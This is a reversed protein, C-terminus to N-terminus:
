ELIKFYKYIPYVVGPKGVGLSVLYDTLVGSGVFGDAAQPELCYFATNAAPQALDVRFTGAPFEKSSSKRFRGTLEMTPERVAQRIGGTGYLPTPAKALMDIVFEEGTAKVPKDLVDVKVNHTRLKEAIFGMDAPILYGRPVTAERTGVPKALYDLDKYVLDPPGVPGPQGWTRVSTGPIYRRESHKRSYAPVDIKGYSEYEGALFNKLRGSEAETLVKNVVDRDADRCIKVMERGHKASYDLIESMLAYHVYIRREYSPNGAACGTEALISMRSRLGYAAAVFKAETTWIANELSYVTPVEGEKFNYWQGAYTPTVDCHTFVSLGFNKRTTERIAPFLKDWVYSRPGPHAAPVTSTTYVIAYEYWGSYGHGDYILVPDWRNFITRYLGNLEVSELKIADRNLNLGQANRGTGGLQPSGPDQIRLSDTGDPNISPACIIILDDLLYKKKGLLIDRMLMLIGEKNESEGGGHINGQLYIVPKGTAKAEEPSNVRPNAMVIATGAKGRSTTFMNILGVNESNWRLVNFFELIEISSTTRAFDTKEPVTRFEAPWDGNWGKPVDSGWYMKEEEVETQLSRAFLVTLLGCVLFMLVFLRNKKM